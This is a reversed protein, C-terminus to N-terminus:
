LSRLTQAPRARLLPLSAGLAFALVLVLGGGLVALIETWDPLWDFEFLQVIVLWAVGSGMALAVTALVAALLGFEAFQLALLQGRSAGLVRLIVTDYIRAARAAAIAGLLVAIGALVAVSAAALIALSVQDLITRAETLIPGVEIVSSSPFANVLTRLLGSTDTGEPMEITAALNHPATEFTNASFVWVNNFGLSEWDIRRTNAVRATFDVGLVNVTVLDGIAIGAAAALEEDVSVLAEGAHGDEWWEGSTVVNGSPIVDSYTLGREGRLGWTGERGEEMESVRTMNGEPGFAVISGRLTPVTEIVADESVDTIVGRFEEVRDRPIDLVFYDPAREPVSRQINGDLSSQVGALLVFASLGFGLATVLSGTAAGPRHLNALAARVIPDAPRPARTAAWRIARGLLALFGLIAAAGGLFLASLEPNNSGVIALAVIGAIGLGVPLAAGRWAQALPSVRARMLAMAPFQKARALPPAAFVLAVLLGFALARGLAWPDIVFDTTVPLLSGLANALLPTVLVGALLGAGAGVLAAMGIELAYIRVIDASTAGLIKLTAISNRRAELYSNVGGGIGIGAIVLAALGVLTLFEGMRSVFRDAGPSARNRTRTDFSVEPFREELAEVVTDPDDDGAFAVRTKTQFMSGPAVLGAQEPLDLPVIVTQGLAFGESLRDPEEEIIGAVTVQQTGLTIVDGPQADLREAAGEALYAEGASPAEASVGGQLLLTGYMPYNAAVAKLEVPVAADPTSAMAQLRYGPSTTGYEELFALEEENLMRQWLEVEIDGGLIAQGQSDLEGQIASTLSGIAALAGVGLFLCVLLLRLGRFGSSLDRKAITWARGWSM